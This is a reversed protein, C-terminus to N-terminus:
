LRIIRVTVINNSATTIITCRERHHIIAHLVHHHAMSSTEENEERELIRLCLGGHHRKLGGITYDMLMKVGGNISGQSPQGVRRINSLTGILLGLHSAAMKTNRCGNFHTCMSTSPLQHHMILVGGLQKQEGCFVFSPYAIESRTIFVSPPCLM